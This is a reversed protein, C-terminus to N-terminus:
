SHCQSGCRNLGHPRSTSPPSPSFGGSPFFLSVSATSHLLCTYLPISITTTRGRWACSDSCSSLTHHLRLSHSVSSLGSPTLSPSSSSEDEERHNLQMAQQNTVDSVTRAHRVGGVSITQARRRLPLDAPSQVTGTLKEEEEEEPISPQHDGTSFLRRPHRLTWRRRMGRGPEPSTSRFFEAIRQINFGRRRFLRGVRKRLEQETEKLAEFERKLSDRSAGSSRCM